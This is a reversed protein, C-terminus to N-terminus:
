LKTGTFFATIFFLLLYMIIAFYRGYVIAKTQKVGKQNCVLCNYLFNDPLFQIWVKNTICEKCNSM